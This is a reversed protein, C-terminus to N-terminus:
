VEKYTILIYENKETNLRNEVAQKHFAEVTIYLYDAKDYFFMGQMFCTVYGRCTKPNSLLHTKFHTLVELFEPSKGETKIRLIETTM